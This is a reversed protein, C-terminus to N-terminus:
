SDAQLQMLMDLKHHYKDKEGEKEAVAEAKEMWKRAKKQDGSMLYGFSVLSYFKPDDDRMRIAYKAEDIAGDYDGNNFAVTALHFRYYPNRMRHAEVRGLYEAALEDYGQQQYLNALSSMAVLSDDDAELGRLYASEAYEYYGDRRYLSGLNVWAPSFSSDERLAQRFNAFALTTDGGLMEEVGINNFYHARARDDSIIRVDQSPSYDRINFDVVHDRGAVLPLFVNIHQNLLATHGASSWLPPIDVEQYHADLGAYRAMAVFMNTFSLCNGRQRQFTGEATYTREDYVLEFVGEGMLAYLLRQLRASKSLGEELHSDIFAKMEPSLALIDLQSLNELEAGAALPSADLLMQSTIDKAGMKPADGHRFACANVALVAALMLTAHNLRRRIKGM